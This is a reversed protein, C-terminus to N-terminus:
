ILIPLLCIAPYPQPIITSLLLNLIIKLTGLEVMEFTETKSSGAIFNNKIVVLLFIPLPDYDGPHKILFENFTLDKHTYFKFGADELVFRKIYGSHPMLFWNFADHKNYHLINSRRFNFDYDGKKLDGHYSAHAVIIHHREDITKKVHDLLKTFDDVERKIYANKEDM